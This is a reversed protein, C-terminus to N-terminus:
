SATDPPGSARDGTGVGVSVGDAVGGGFTGSVVTSCGSGLAM